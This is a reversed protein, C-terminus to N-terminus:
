KIELKWIRKTKKKEKTPTDICGVLNKFIDEATLKPKQIKHEV